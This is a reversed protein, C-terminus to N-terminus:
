PTLTGIVGRGQTQRYLALPQFRCPPHSISRYITRLLHLKSSIACISIRCGLLNVCCSYSSEQVNISRIFLPNALRMSTISVLWYRVVLRSSFVVAPLILTIVFKMRFLQHPPHSHPKPTASPRTTIKELFDKGPCN